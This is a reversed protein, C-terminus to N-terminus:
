PENGGLSGLAQAAGGGAVTELQTGGKGEAFSRLWIRLGAVCLCLFIFYLIATLQLGRAVYLYIYIVDAAIWLHWNEIVKRNLLYQAALSLVTTLADLAPSAGRAARLALTLALTGVVVFVAVFLLMRRTAHEVSMSARKEGGHLWLYWGQFGLVVYVIQLGADGYLKAEAFLVLFFINNIIGAPFNWINVVVALYVSAAGTVFGFTETTSYPIWGRWSAVVLAVSLTIGFWLDLRKM